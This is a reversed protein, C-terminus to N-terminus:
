DARGAIFKIDPLATKVTSTILARTTEDIKLIDIAGKVILVANGNGDTVDVDAYIIGQPTPTGSSSTTLVTTRDTLADKSAHGVPTGAKIIKRGDTGASVGTNDVLVNIRVATQDAILISDCDNCDFTKTTVM